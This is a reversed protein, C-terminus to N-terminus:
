CPVILLVVVIMDVSRKLENIKVCMLEGKERECVCM